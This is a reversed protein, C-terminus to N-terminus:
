KSLLIIIKFEACPIDNFPDYLDLKNNVNLPRYSYILVLFRYQVIAFKMLLHEFELIM